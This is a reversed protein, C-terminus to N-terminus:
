AYLTKTTVDVQHVRNSCIFINYIYVFPDNLQSIWLLPSGGHTRCLGGKIWSQLLLWVLVCTNAKETFLLFVGVCCDDDDDPVAACTTIHLVGQGTWCSGVIDRKRTTATTKTRNRRLIVLSQNMETWCRGCWKFTRM